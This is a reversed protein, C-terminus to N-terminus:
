DRNESCAIQTCMSDARLGSEPCTCTNCGDDAEYSEGPMCAEPNEPCDILTCMSDARLGSEPCTCTNCGDNADYTEGPMCMDPDPCEIIPYGCEFNSMRRCEGRGAMTIGDPCLMQPAGPALGCEEQTCPVDEPCEFRHVCAGTSNQFCTSRAGVMLDQCVPVAEDPGPSCDMPGCNSADQEPPGADMRTPPAAIELTCGFLVLLMLCLGSYRM